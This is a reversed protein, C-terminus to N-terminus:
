RCIHGEPLRLSFWRHVRLRDHRHVACHRIRASRPIHPSHSRRNNAECCVALLNLQVQFKGRLGLIAGSFFGGLAVNYHDEKERLNASATKVFEYTGGM